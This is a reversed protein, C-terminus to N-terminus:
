ASWSYNIRTVCQCAQGVDRWETSKAVLSPLVVAALASPFCPMATGVLTPPHKESARPWKRSIRLFFRLFGKVNEKPLSIVLFVSSKSWFQITLPWLFIRETLPSPMLLRSVHPTSVGRSLKFSTRSETRRVCGGVLVPKKQTSNTVPWAAHLEHQEEVPLSWM